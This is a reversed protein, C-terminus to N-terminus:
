GAEPLRTVTADFLAAARVLSTVAGRPPAAPLQADGVGPHANNRFGYTFDSAGLASIRIGERPPSKLYMGTPVKTVTRVIGTTSIDSLVPIQHPKEM